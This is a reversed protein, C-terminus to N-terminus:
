EAPPPPQTGPAPAAAPAPAPAPPPTAVAPAAPPAPALGGDAALETLAVRYKAEVKEFALKRDGNELLAEIKANRATRLDAVEQAKQLPSKADNNLTNQLLVGDGQYDAQIAKKEDDTLKLTATLEGLYDDFKITPAPPPPPTAPQPLADDPKEAPAPAPPPTKAPTAAAVAGTTLILSIACGIVLFSFKMVSCFHDCIRPKDIEFGVGGAGDPM